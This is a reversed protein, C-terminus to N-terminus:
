RREQLGRKGPSKAPVANNNKTQVKAESKNGLTLRKPEMRKLKTARPSQTEEQLPSSKVSEGEKEKTKLAM